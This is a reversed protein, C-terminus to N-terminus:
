FQIWGCSEDSCKVVKEWVLLNKANCKPCKLGSGTPNIDTDLLEQTILAAYDAMQQQFIGADTEGNEVQQLALEWEATMAVDAIKQNKVLGYVQLGKDTPILAKKAKVIYQRSLLTEIIAARTAPTGIGINSLIKKDETNELPRGANEMASLIGAETYLAPPKTTKQQVESKTISLQDGAKLDPLKQTPEKGEEQFNGQIGRWGAEMIRIGKLLFEYHSAQLSIDTIEKKCTQSV